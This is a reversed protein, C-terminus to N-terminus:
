VTLSGKTTEGRGIEAEIALMIPRPRVVEDQSRSLDGKVAEVLRDMYKPHM